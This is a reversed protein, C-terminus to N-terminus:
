SIYRTLLRHSGNSGRLGVRINARENQPMM